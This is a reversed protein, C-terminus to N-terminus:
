PGHFAQTPAHVWSHAGLSVYSCTATLYTPTRGCNGHAVGRRHCRSCDGRHLWRAEPALPSGGAAGSIWGPLLQDRQVRPACVGPGLGHRESHLTAVRAEGKRARRLVAGAVAGWIMAQLALPHMVDVGSSLVESVSKWVAAAPAPWQQSGLVDPSPVLVYRFVPVVVLVGVFVGVLQALFQKRPNAGLEHGAKLDTLLDAASSASGATVSAAMLNPVAAGPMLGSYSVQAIKGLPGVPTVDTEGTARAAVVALVFAMLVAFVGLPIPIDFLAAQLAVCATGSAGAGAAFWTWPVELRRLPDDGDGDEDATARMSTLARVITRWQAAFMLLSSVVMMSVGTWLTFQVIGRYGLQEIAGADHAAPALVGFCLVAGLLLSWCVRWGMIAGAAVLLGSVELGWTYTLAVGLWPVAEIMGPTPLLEPVALTAAFPLDGRHALATMGGTMWKLLVGAGMAWLLARAQRQGDVGDGHLSRLTEAAARGTPFPLREINVLQRKMPVAMFLGLLAVCLVWASLQWFPMHHGVVMLYAAIASVLNAGTSYGAASATSAMANIELITMPSRAIRLRLLATWIAWGVVSATIVVGLSWGTKLGVYLNSLGTLGGLAAGMLVARVTLQAVEDGRYRRELWAREVARPSHTELSPLDTEDNSVTDQLGYRIQGAAAWM